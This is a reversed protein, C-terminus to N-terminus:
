QGSYRMSAASSPAKMIEAERKADSSSNGPEGTWRAIESGVM